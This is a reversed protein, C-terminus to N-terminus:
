KLSFISGYIHSFDDKSSIGKLYTLLVSQFIGPYIHIKDSNRDISEICVYNMGESRRDCKYDM